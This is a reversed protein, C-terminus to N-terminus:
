RLRWRDQSRIPEYRTRCTQSRGHNGRNGNETQPKMIHQQVTNFLLRSLPRRAHNRARLPYSQKQHAHTHNSSSQSCSYTCNRSANSRYIRVHTVNSWQPSLKQLSSITWRPSTRDSAEKTLASSPSTFSALPNDLNLISCMRRCNSPSSPDGSKRIVKITTDRRNPPPQQHLKVPHNDPWLLHQQTQQYLIQDNGRQIKEHRCSRAETSNISPMTSDQMTFPKMTHQLQEYNCNDEDEHTKTTSTSLLECTNHVRKKRKTEHIDHKKLRRVNSLINAIKEKIMNHTNHTQKEERTTMGRKQILNNCHDTTTTKKPQTARPNSTRRSFVSNTMINQWTQRPCGGENRPQDHHHLQDYNISKSRTHKTFAARTSTGTTTPLYSEDTSGMEKNASYATNVSVEHFCFHLLIHSISSSFSFLFNSSISPEFDFPSAWQMCPHPSVHACNSRHPTCHTLIVIVRVLVSWTDHQM